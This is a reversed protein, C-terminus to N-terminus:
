KLCLLIGELVGKRIIKAKKGYGKRVELIYNGPVINKPISFELRGKTCQSFFDVKMLTKDMAVFFIGEDDNEINFKLEAGYIQGIGGPTIISNITNSHIDEYKKLMPRKTPRDIKNTEVKKVSERFILSPRFDLRLTHRSSDYVDKIGNFKGKISPRISVIPLNVNHGESVETIIETFFLNFVAIIDAESVTSGRSLMGKIIKDLDCKGMDFIRAIYEEPNSSVTNPRLYYNIPM